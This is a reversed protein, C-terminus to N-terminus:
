KIERPFIRLIRFSNYFYIKLFSALLRGSVSHLQVEPKKKTKILNSVLITVNDPICVIVMLWVKEHGYTFFFYEM